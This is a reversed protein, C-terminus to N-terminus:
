TVGSPMKFENRIWEREFVANEEIEKHVAMYNSPLEFSRKKGSWDDLDKKARREINRM